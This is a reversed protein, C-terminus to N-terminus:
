MGKLKNAREVRLKRILRESTWVSNKGRLDEAVDKQIQIIKAALDDKNETGALFSFPVFAAKIKGKKAVLFVKGAEVEDTIYGLSLRLSTLDIVQKTDILM